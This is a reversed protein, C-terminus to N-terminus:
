SGIEKRTNLLHFFFQLYKRSVANESLFGIDQEYGLFISRPQSKPTPSHSEPWLLINILLYTLWFIIIIIIASVSNMLSSESM